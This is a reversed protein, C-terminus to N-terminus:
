APRNIKLKKMRSELTTPKMKLIEAAGDKGSIKWQTKKLVKIIYDREFAELSKFSENDEEIEGKLWDGIRLTKGDSIIIGREIINELERVNGPWAYAMLQKIIPQPVKSVEKGLKQNYKDIFHRVLM